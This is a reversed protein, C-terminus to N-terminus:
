EEEPLSEEYEELVQAAHKAKVELVDLQVSLEPLLDHYGVSAPRHRKLRRRLVEVAQAYETVEDLMREVTSLTPVTKTAM